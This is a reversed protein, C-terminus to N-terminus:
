IFRSFFQETKMLSNTSSSLLMNANIALESLAILNLASTYNASASVGYFKVSDDDARKSM